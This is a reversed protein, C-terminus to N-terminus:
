LNLRIELSRAANQLNIENFTEIDPHGKSGVVYSRRFLRKNANAYPQNLNMGWYIKEVTEIQEEDLTTFEELLEVIADLEESNCIKQYLKDKDPHSLAEELTGDFPEDTGKYLIKYQPEGYRFVEVFNVDEALMSMMMDNWKKPSFMRSIDKRGFKDSIDGRLLKHLLLSNYPMYFGSYASLDQVVEQYNKPTIQIYHPKEIDKSEAYTGKKSRLFVSVTDDVLPVLDADNTIVDIPLGPYKEKARKVCAFVLDDAEFNNEAFCSVGASRFIREVDSIGEFMADPMKERGGKYEKDSGVQMEPFASQFYAKRAPVPRDFCVAVPNAGHNSWRHVAKITGSQITTDKSISEGNEVVRISLRHPSNYYTHVMHNFDVIVVRREM